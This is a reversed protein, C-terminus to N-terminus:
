RVAYMDYAYFSERPRVEGVGICQLRNLWQYRPHATLLRIEKRVPLAAPWRGTRLWDVWDHGYDVTGTHRLSVLAHDDTEVTLTKDDKAKVAVDAETGNEANFKKAGKIPWLTNAYESATKPNLVNVVIGQRYLHLSSRPPVAAM